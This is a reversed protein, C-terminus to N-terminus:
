RGAWKAVEPTYRDGAAAGPSFAADIKALEAPTLVIDVAGVNEELHGRRKMGPIPIVDEGRSLVWALAVQALTKGHAKAIAELPELLALNKALNEDSFRPNGERWDGSAIVERGKVAGTFFGRGLPSFPVFSIRLERCAPLVAAEPERTWLSFESQLATIPHVAHARRLTSEAVESLGLFRIKGAKVLESMAGISDEVPVDPDIRHLYYLDIVDTKLRALSADCASVIRKPSGDVGIVPNGDPDPRKVWGTKTALVFEGRRSAIAGGVLSENHGDEGYSDATDIFNIGLDLARHLTAISESEDAPGYSGSMGWCGLGISSVRIGTRGLERQRM